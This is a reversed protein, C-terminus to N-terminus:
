NDMRASPCLDQVPCSSCRPRRAICVERGFLVWRRNVHLWEEKPYLSCLDKEVQEPTEGKSLGLLHAVRFVHTDVAIGEAIGFGEAMVVNATKRGVGPLKCLDAITHPVVGDFTDIVTQACKICNEAKVHYFGIPRLIDELEYPVANALAEISPYKEWLLPTVENVRVDTTQASLLTAITLKFPDGDFHLPCPRQGFHQELRRGIEQARLRKATKTERAM